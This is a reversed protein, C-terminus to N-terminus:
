KLIDYPNSKTLAVLQDHENRSWDKKWIKSIRSEVSRLQTAKDALSILLYVEPRLLTRREGERSEPSQKQQIRTNHGILSQM